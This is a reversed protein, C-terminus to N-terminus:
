QKSDEMCGLIETPSVQEYYRMKNFFQLNEKYKRLYYRGHDYCWLVDQVGVFCKM